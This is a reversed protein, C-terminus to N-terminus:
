YHKVSGSMVPFFFQLIITVKKTLINFSSGNCINTYWLINYLCPGTRQNEVTTGPKIQFVLWGILTHNTLLCWLGCKQLCQMSQQALNTYIACRKTRYGCNVIQSLLQQMVFAGYCILSFLQEMTFHKHTTHHLISWSFGQMM